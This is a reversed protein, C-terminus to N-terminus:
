KANKCMQIELSLLKFIDPAVFNQNIEEFNSNKMLYRSSCQRTFTNVGKSSNSMWMMRLGLLGTSDIRNSACITVNSKKLWHPEGTWQLKDFSDFGKLLRNVEEGKTASNHHERFYLFFMSHSWIKAAKPNSQQRHCKHLLPSLM